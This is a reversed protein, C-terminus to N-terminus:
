PQELALAMPIAIASVKQLTGTAPGPTFTSRPTATITSTFLFQPSTQSLTIRSSTSYLVDRPFGKPSVVGENLTAGGRLSCFDKWATSDFLTNLGARCTAAPVRGTCGSLSPDCTRAHLARHHVTYKHLSRECYNPQLTTLPM